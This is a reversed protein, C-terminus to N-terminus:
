PTAEQKPMDVPAGGVLALDSAADRLYDWFDDMDFQLYKQMQAAIAEMQSDSLTYPWDPENDDDDMFAGAIDTRTLYLVGFRQFAVERRQIFRALGDLDVHTAMTNDGARWFQKLAELLRYREAAPTQENSM